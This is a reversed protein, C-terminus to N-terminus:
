NYFLSFKITRLFIAASGDIGTATQNNPSIGLLNWAIMLVHQDMNLVIPSSFFRESALVHLAFLDIMPIIPPDLAHSITRIPDIIDLGDVLSGLSLVRGLKHLALRFGYELATESNEQGANFM